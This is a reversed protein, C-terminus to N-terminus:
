PRYKEPVNITVTGPDTAKAFNGKLRENVADQIQVATNM